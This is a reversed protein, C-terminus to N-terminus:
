KQRKFIAVGILSILVLLIAVIPIGTDKMAASAHKNENGSKSVFNKASVDDSSKKDSLKDAKNNKELNADLYESEQAVVFTRQENDTVFTFVGNESELTVEKDFRADFSDIVGNTLGKFVDTEFYPLLSSDANEGTNLGFTYAFTVVNSNLPSVNVVDMVFYNKLTANVKPTNSGWWNYNLNINDGIELGARNIRYGSSLRDINQTELNNNFERENESNTTGDDEGNTGEDDFGTNELSNAQQLVNRETYEMMERAIDADRIRSDADEFCYFDVDYGTTYTNNFIRNYNVTIQASLDAIVIGQLNNYINCGTVIAPGFIFIAQSNETFNSGSIVSNSAETFIAGGYAAKNGIFLCNIVYLHNYRYYTDLSDQIDNNNMGEPDQELDGDDGMGPDDFGQPRQNAQALMAQSAQQLIFCGSDFIAGGYDRATNNIFICNEVTVGGHNFIAGGKVAVNNIFTCNIFTMTSTPFPNFIAGGRESNGNVFTLNIFTVNVNEGITFIGSSKQGDIVVKERPGKGQITVNKEILINTDRDAKNYTGQNLFLTDGNNLDENNLAGLIGGDTGASITLNAAFGTPLSCIM